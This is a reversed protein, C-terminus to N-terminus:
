REAQVREVVALIGPLVFHDSLESHRMRVHPSDRVGVKLHAYTAKLPGLELDSYLVWAEGHERALEIVSGLMTRDSPTEVVPIGGYDYRTRFM